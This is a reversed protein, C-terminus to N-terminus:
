AAVTDHRAALSRMLVALTTGNHLLASTSPSLKGFAAALMIGTNIVETVRINSSVLSMAKQSLLRADVVSHLADQLLVLDATQQALETGRGMAIGVEACTLAPADNVGDGVFMVKHGRAQLQSVIEAKSEPTAEAFVMDIGLEAALQEAKSQCDGSLMVLHKIGARKLNALTAKADPRVEDTLGIIGSLQHDHSVFLLHRGQAELEAIQAEHASFDVQEHAQLFHRSGIILQTGNLTSKLGHAIVYEVEGHDIHPLDHDHAANVIAQSLPHNCHEEVSAAIALLERADDAGLLPVVDTVEMSGQTLTGTKDFVCTDVEALQEIARGGKFLIGQKAARYMISKFTVPTSLKLACSYDVLFVSALRNFDRTLAFVLAGVGLTIKVRRNAMEQTAQQTESKQSLSDAIFQAIRATTAESGVKEARVQIRGETVATGAYVYAGEERRVPVTEGTLSAQNVLAQGEIIRGDVPLGDGPGLLLVDGCILDDSSIQVEAGERLVWVQTHSPRMLDALVEDSKRSTEQEMYEGLTLLTQTIMAARFDGRGASIGLAIADLADVEVKGQALSHAGRVITPGVLPATTFAGYGRPLLGAAIIGLVNLFVDSKKYEPEAESQIVQQWDVDKLRQEVLKPDIVMFDYEVIVCCAAENVRVRRVGQLAMLGQKLWESCDPFERISPLRFRARGPIHHLLVPTLM